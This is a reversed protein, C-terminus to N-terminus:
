YYTWETCVLLQDPLVTTPTLAQYVHYEKARDPPTVICATHFITRSDAPLPPAAIM